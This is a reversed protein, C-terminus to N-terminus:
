QHASRAARGLPARHPGQGSARLPLFTIGLQDLRPRVSHSASEPWSKKWPWHHDNRTFFAAAIEMSLSPFASAASCPKCCASTARSTEAPFFQAALIKGSADDAHRSRHASAATKSGTTRSGDLQVLQGRPRFRLRRQRHSAPENAPRASGPPAPLRRLTERHFSFGEQEVLKEWLHHDNFGAYRTRALRLVAQPHTRPPPPPQAAASAHVLAAAGGQRYRLKLRKVHRPTIDLLERSQYV